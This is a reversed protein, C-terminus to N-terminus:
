GSGHAQRAGGGPHAASGEGFGGLQNAVIRSAMDNVGGAPFPVILRVLREPYTAGAAPLV